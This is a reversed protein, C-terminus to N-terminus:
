RARAPPIIATTAGIVTIVAATTGITAPRNVDLKGPASASM